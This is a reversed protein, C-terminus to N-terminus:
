HSPLALDYGAAEDGRGMQLTRHLLPATVRRMQGDLM